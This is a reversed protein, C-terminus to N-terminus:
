SAHEGSRRDPLVYDADLDWMLRSLGPTEIADIIVEIGLSHAMAMLGHAFTSRRPDEYPDGLAHQELKLFNLNLKLLHLL